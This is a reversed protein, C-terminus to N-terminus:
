SNQPFSYLNAVVFDRGNGSDDGFVTYKSAIVTNSIPLVMHPAAGDDGANIMPREIAPKPALPIMFPEITTMNEIRGNLFLGMYWPNTPAMNPIALMTPGKNPPANM